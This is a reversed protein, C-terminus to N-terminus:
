DIGELAEQFEKERDIRKLTWKIRLKRKGSKDAIAQVLPDLYDMWGVERHIRRVDELIDTDALGARALVHDLRNVWSSYGPGLAIVENQWKPKFGGLRDLM